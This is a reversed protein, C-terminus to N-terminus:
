SLVLSFLLILSRKGNEKEEGICDSISESLGLTAATPMPGLISELSPGKLHLVSQEQDEEDEETRKQDLNKLAELTLDDLDKGFHKAVAQLEDEEEEPLEDDVVKSTSSVDENAIQSDSLCVSPIIHSEHHM